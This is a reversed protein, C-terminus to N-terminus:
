SRKLVECTMAGVPIREVTSWAGKNWPPFYTDGTPEPDLKVWTIFMRDVLNRALAEKYIAAGGIIMAEAAKGTEAAALAQELSTFWEIGAIVPPAVKRSIVLNRRGPLPRGKLEDLTKRGMIIPKGLTMRKFHQLDAPLNWPVRGDKGILGAPTMAVILSRIMGGDM